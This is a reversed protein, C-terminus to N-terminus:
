ICHSLKLFCATPENFRHVNDACVHAYINVTGETDRSYHQCIIRLFSSEPMHLKLRLKGHLACIEQSQSRCM